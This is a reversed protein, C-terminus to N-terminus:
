HPTPTRTGAASRGGSGLGGSSVLELRNAARASFNSVARLRGRVTSQLRLSSPRCCNAVGPEAELRVWKGDRRAMLYGSVAPTTTTVKSTPPTGTVVFGAEAGLPIRTQAAVGPPRAADPSATALIVASSLAACARRVHDDLFEIRFSKRRSVCRSRLRLHTAATTALDRRREM